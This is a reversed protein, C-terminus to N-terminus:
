GTMAAWFAARTSWAPRMYRGKTAEMRSDRRDVSWSLTVASKRFSFEQEIPPLEPFFQNSQFDSFRGNTYALSLNQWAGLVRQYTLTIGQEKRVFRQFQLLDYDLDRKFLQIGVNQPKDFLWPIFYNVNFEERYRGTQISVGLTEGRGLFNRTQMGAQLFFGDIESFGGGFTMETREAEDGMVTLNVEHTEEDIDIEVPEEEHLKFFELQNLKFLSNRLQGSNFIMGEQVRLNRRLVRDKTKTNGSFEIRGIRYQDGEEIFLHLDAVLDGSERIEREIRAFMYGSNQYFEEIQEVGSKIMDERLWGGKPQKFVAKLLEDPLVENGEVHIQGLSWREGEELPIILALKRDKVQGEKDTGKEIVDLQADGIVLNKYGANKYLERIKDLDEEFTAPNYVDRKRIKTIINSKKTKEMTSRLKGQSFVENGDFSVKGIKVKNGEDVFVVVRQEYDSVPELQITADAFRYGKEEYLDEIATEFRALEGKSLYLGEYLDLRESDILESMDSRKLKKLGEYEISVLLPREVVYLTVSVGGEVEVVDVEIGDLLDRDWTERIKANLEDPDYREGIVLDFYFLLDEDTLAKNNQVDVSVLTQGAYRDTQAQLGLAGGLLLLPLMFRHLRSTM